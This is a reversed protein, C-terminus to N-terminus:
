RLQVEVENETVHLYTITDPLAAIELETGALQEDYTFTTANGKIQLSNAILAGEFEVNGKLDVDSEPAYLVGTFSPTGSQQGEIDSADSHVYVLLQSANGGENVDNNGKLTFGDTVYISVTGEGEIALRDPEFSGDIVLEVDEDNTKITLDEPVDDGSAYHVEEDTQTIQGNEVPECGDDLCEQVKSDILPSASPYRVGEQHPEPMSGANRTITETVAVANEITTEFPVDLEVTVTRTEHDLEVSGETRADFFEYWGQYYESQIEVEVKGDELPNTREGTGDPYIAEGDGTGVLRGRVSGAARDDGVVRVIPFTLTRQQYHYEPPSVMVSRDGDKRWVGGGQYAIETGGVTAVVAGYSGQYLEDRDGGEDVHTVTGTGADERVDVTGDGLDGLDFAHTESRGLAVLGAKSSMQSMSNGAQAVQSDTQAAGLVTAGSVAVATIGIVTVSLLLVVGIVASQGRRDPEDGVM